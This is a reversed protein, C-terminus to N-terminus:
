PQVLWLITIGTVGAVLVALAALILVAQEVRRLM